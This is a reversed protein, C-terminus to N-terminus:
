GSLWGARQPALSMLGAELLSSSIMTSARAFATTTEFIGMPEMLNTYKHLMIYSIIM